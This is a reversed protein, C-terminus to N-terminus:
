FDNENNILMLVEYLKLDSWQSVWEYPRVFGDEGPSFGEFLDSILGQNGVFAYDPGTIVDTVEVLVICPPVNTNESLQNFRATIHSKLSRVGSIRAVRFTPFPINALLRGM